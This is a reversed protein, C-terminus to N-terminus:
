RGEQWPTTINILGVGHTYNGASSYRWDEPRDVDGRRVPNQRIYELKQRLMNEDQIEQPHSGEQWLQFRQEAKHQSKFFKLENLITEFGQKKLGELIRKATFSKFNRIQASLDQGSAMWHVHNELCVYGYIQIGRQKQLFNWSDFIIEVFQPYAFVPLWAVVTATLFYPTETKFIRYRSRAM